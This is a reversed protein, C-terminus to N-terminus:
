QETFTLVTGTWYNLGNSGIGKHTQSTESPMMVATRYDGKQPDYFYVSCYASEYIISLLKSLNGENQPMCICIISAKWGIVDDVYDGSMLYGSNKGSVKKYQVSYGFPTFLDSFDIGNIKITKKM